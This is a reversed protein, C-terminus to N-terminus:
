GTMRRVLARGAFRLRQSLPFRKFTSAATGTTFATRRSYDIAVDVLVPRGTAAVELAEAIAADIRENSPIPIYAAGTAIAIGEARLTALGTCPKRNYPIQQAQAIQSLEGDSFLFIIVGLGRAAATALELGTMMFCGDGVVAFVTRDPCGLKAGIAAPVAYGMANFDTPTLLAGGRHIAFLEAALYTHNGDDLVTVANDPMLARLGDFFRAPNVRANGARDGHAYWEARYAAKDDAIARATAVARAQLREMGGTEALKRQVAELLAPIVHAADGVLGVRVPHNAGIATPDIDIHILNQPVSAAFSGTPIEGFRAGVALLTDCNAFAKRAAPVASPSFGFGAHLAHDAPFSALGQLTTSVPAGLVDALEILADTAGRGGWGVFLGPRDAALLLDAAQEIARSDPMKAPPIPLWEPLEAVEGPFLQLNVPIEVLVPGPMGSTAVRYAEYLTPVVDAHTEVRFAAKTLPAALAMQDIGHLPFRNDTDTRVGGTIILLPIGALLAEGIGSAAHTFGAAPVIALTGIGGNWSDDSLRSVADAMFAAGAEHTVLVPTIRNSVNLADYLETTHVGPIGFTYRVGMQELAWVALWAATRKM